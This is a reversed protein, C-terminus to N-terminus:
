CPQDYVLGHVSHLCHPELTIFMSEKTEQRNHAANISHISAKLGYNKKFLM